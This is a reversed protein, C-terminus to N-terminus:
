AASTQRTRDRSPRGRSRLAAQAIERGVAFPQGVLLRGAHPVDHDVARQDPGVIALERELLERPGTGRQDSPARRSRLAGIRLFGAPREVFLEPQEMAPFHGGREMVAWHVVNYQREVWSRPWRLVEKPYRAVGTPVHVFPPAGASSHKHRGTCVPRPRVPRPSGTCWSTPSSNIAPSAIRPSGTATAGPGSSRSSGPWSDPRLTTSRSRRADAAQDGARQRLGVGRGRIGEHGGPGGTGRRDATRPEPTPRRQGHQPPHRCLARSRAVGIWTTVQAGWDGGQAVYDPYGLRDMLAIFARAIRPVDWGPSRPPESFGYGPLSPVIVHFADSAQGGYSEPNTLRPIVDLFEVISGPWGHTLLLPRADPHASRAHIFHIRHGDIDTRFHEFGNLRAEESRWDYGDRWFEVLQRLYDVPIGYEWGTDAIQDPFRTQVLRRHLDELVPDDVRIEFGEISESM